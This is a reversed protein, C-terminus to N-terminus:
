QVELVLMWTDYGAKLHNLKIYIKTELCAIINAKYSSLRCECVNEFNHCKGAVNTQISIIKVVIIERSIALDIVMSNKTSLHHNIHPKTVVVRVLFIRCM